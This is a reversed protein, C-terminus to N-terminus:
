SARQSINQKVYFGLGPPLPKGEEVHERVLENVLRKREKVELLSDDHAEAWLVFTDRDQVNGFTTATPVFNIGDVKIGEIGDEEMREYLGLTAGKFQGDLEEFATKAADRKLRLSRLSRAEDEISAQPM